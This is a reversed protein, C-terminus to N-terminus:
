QEYLWQYTFLHVKKIFSRIRTSQRIRNQKNNHKKRDPTEAIKKFTHPDVWPLEEQFDPVRNGMHHVLYEPSSLLWYGRRILELELIPISIQDGRLHKESGTSIEESRQDWIPLIKALANKTTTFQFDVATTYACTGKRTVLVDRRQSLRNKKYTEFELGVSKSHARLFDEPILDDGTTVETYPDKKAAEITQQYFYSGANTALPMATIM